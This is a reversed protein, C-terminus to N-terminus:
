GALHKLLAENVSDGADIGLAHGADPMTVCHANPMVDALAEADPTLLDAGAALVLTPAQISGLASDRTGSWERMGVAVRQLTQAPVRSVTQMLGRVTRERTVDDALLAAGFLWPALTRALLDMDGTAAVRTWADCIAFLRPSATVFPTILTLSRVQEPHALALELAVAAGLSAGVVHAPGDLVAAADSAATTVTYVDDDPADSLGVGRPNVGLVQFQKALIPSQRAFASVDTGFGPLLLVPDGEGDRLVELAVGDAVTVLSERREAYAVVDEITVRGGPGTGPVDASEVKLERARRRAAPTVPAGRRAPGSPKEAKAASSPALALAPAPAPREPPPNAAEHEQRFVEADFSDDETDTFAALLTGCPVTETPEVYVHRLVGTVASEVEVQAKESEILVLPEGKEIREGVDILWEVVTGEAMSMGLKPMMVAFPM